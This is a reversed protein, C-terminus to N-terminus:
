VIHKHHTYFYAAEPNHIKLTRAAVRRIDDSTVEPREKLWAEIEKCVAGAATDASGESSRISLCAAVISHHLKDRSYAEHGHQGGRKVIQVSM